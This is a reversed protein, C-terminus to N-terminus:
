DADKEGEVVFIVEGRDRAEVIEPLRYLCSKVGRL